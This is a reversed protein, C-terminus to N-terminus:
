GNYGGDVITYVNGTEFMTNFKDAIRKEFQARTENLDMNAYSLGICHEGYYNDIGPYYTMNLKDAITDAIECADFEDDLKRADKPHLKIWAEKIQEDNFARGVLMFSSSSSNSVYDTRIKM